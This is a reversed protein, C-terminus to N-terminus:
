WDSNSDSPSEASIIIDTVMILMVINLVVALFRVIKNLNEKNAIVLNDLKWGDSYFKKYISSWLVFISLYTTAIKDLNCWSEPDFHIPLVPNFFVAMIAFIWGWIKHEIKFSKYSYYATTSCVLFRLVQYFGNSLLETTSYAVILMIISAIIALNGAAWTVLAKIKQFM